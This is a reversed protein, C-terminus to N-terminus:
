YIWGKLCVMSEQICLQDNCMGLHRVAALHIVLFPSFLYFLAKLVLGVM